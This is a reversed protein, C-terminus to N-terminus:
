VRGRVRLAPTLHDTPEQLYRGEIALGDLPLITKGGGRKRASAKDWEVHLFNEISKLLFTRFRGRSQDARSFYGKEPFSAFFGQTLDGADEASYGRRRVYAYLPYWYTECLKTLAESRLHPDGNGTALVVSWHTTAFCRADPQRRSPEPAAM